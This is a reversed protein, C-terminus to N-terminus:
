AIENVSSIETQFRECQQHTQFCLLDVAGALCYQTLWPVEHSSVQSIHPRSVRITDSENSAIV